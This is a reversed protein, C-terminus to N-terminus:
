SRWPVSPSVALMKLCFFQRVLRSICGAVVDKKSNLSAVAPADVRVNASSNSSKHMVLDCFVEGSPIVYAKRFQELGNGIRSAFFGDAMVVVAKDNPFANRLAKGCSDFGKQITSDNRESGNRKILDNQDMRRSLIGNRIIEGNSLGDLIIGHRMPEGSNNTLDSCDNGALLYDRSCAADGLGNGATQEPPHSKEMNDSSGGDGETM